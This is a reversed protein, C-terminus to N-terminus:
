ETENKLIGLNDYHYKVFFDAMTDNAYINKESSIQQFIDKLLEQNKDFNKIM